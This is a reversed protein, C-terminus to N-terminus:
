CRSSEGYRLSVQCNIPEFWLGFKTAIPLPIGIQLAPCSRTLDIQRRGIGYIESILGEMYLGRWYIRRGVDYRLFFSGNIGRWIYARLPKFKSIARLYLIFCLLLPVTVSVIKKKNGKWGYALGIAKM